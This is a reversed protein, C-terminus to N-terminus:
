YAIKCSNSQQIPTIVNGNAKRVIEALEEVSITIKQDQLTGTPSTASKHKGTELASSM